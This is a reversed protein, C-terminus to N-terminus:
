ELENSPAPILPTPITRENPNFPTTRGEPPAPPPKPTRSNEQKCSVSLIYDTLGLKQINTASSNLFKCILQM